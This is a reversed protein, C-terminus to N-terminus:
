YYEEDGMWQAVRLSNAATFGYFAVRFSRGADGGLLVQRNQVLPINIQTSQSIICYAYAMSSDASGNNRYQAALGGTTWSASGTVLWSNDDISNWGAIVVSSSYSSTYGTVGIGTTVATFTSGSMSGSVQWYNSGTSPRFVLLQLSSNTNTGFSMSPSGVWTGNFRAWQVRHSMSTTSGSPEVVNWAQGGDNAITYTNGAVRSWAIWVLLDGSQLSTPPNLGALTVDLSANDIPNSSQTVYTIPM